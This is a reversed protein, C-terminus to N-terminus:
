VRLSLCAPRIWSQRSVSCHLSDPYVRDLTLQPLTYRTTISVGLLVEKMERQFRLEELRSMATGDSREM